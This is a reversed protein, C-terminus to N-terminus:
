DTLLHLAVIALIGAAALTASLRGSDGFPLLDAVHSASRLEAPGLL